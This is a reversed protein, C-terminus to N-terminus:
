KALFKKNQAHDLAANKVQEMLSIVNGEVSRYAAVDLDLAEGHCIANRRAVLSEDLFKSLPEFPSADFGVCSVLGLFRVSNLNSEADVLRDGKLEATKGLAEEYHLLLAVRAAAAQEREVRRLPPLLAGVRLAPSLKSLQERQQTVYSMYSRLCAVVFGEWHAYLLAVAARIQAAQAYSTTKGIATNLYSLERKRWGLEADIAEALHALTRLKPTAM